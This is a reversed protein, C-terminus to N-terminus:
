EKNYSDCAVVNDNGVGCGYEHNSDCTAFENKCTDCLNQKNRMWWAIAELEDANFDGSLQATSNIPYYEIVDGVTILANNSQIAGDLIERARQENM